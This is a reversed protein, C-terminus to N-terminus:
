EIIRLGRRLCARQRCTHNSEAVHRQAIQRCTRQDLSEADVWTELRLDKAQIGGRVPFKGVIRYRYGLHAVAQKELLQSWWRLDRKEETHEIAAGSTFELVFGNM